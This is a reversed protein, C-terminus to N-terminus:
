LGAVKNFFVGVCTNEQSNGFQWNCKKEPVDALTQKQEYKM